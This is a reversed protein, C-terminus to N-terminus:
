PKSTYAGHGATVTMLVAAMKVLKNRMTFDQGATSKMIIPLVSNNNHMLSLLSIESRMFTHTRSIESYKLNRRGLNDKAVLNAIAAHDPGIAVEQGVALEIGRGDVTIKASGTKDECLNYLKTVQGQKSVLILSGPKVAININNCHM